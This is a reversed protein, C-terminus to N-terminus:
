ARKQMATWLTQCTSGNHSLSSTSSPSNPRLQIETRCLTAQRWGTEWADVKAHWEAIAEGTHNPMAQAIFYPCDLLTLGEGAASAGDREIDEYM